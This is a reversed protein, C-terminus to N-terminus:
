SAGKAGWDNDPGTLANALDSALAYAHEREKIQEDLQALAGRVLKEAHGRSFVSARVERPASLLPTTKWGVDEDMRGSEVLLQWRGDHKGFVLQEVYLEDPDGPHDTTPGGGIITYVRTSVHARLMEEIKKILDSIATDLADIRARRQSLETVVKVLSPPPADSPKAEQELPADCDPFDLSASVVDSTKVTGDPLKATAPAPHAIGRRIVGSPSSVGTTVKRGFAM